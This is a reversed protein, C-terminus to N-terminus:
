AAFATGGKLALKGRLFPHSRIAGLLGLLHIAKELTEPRFGTAAANAALTDPSVKM